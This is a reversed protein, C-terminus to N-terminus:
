AARYVLGVDEEFFIVVEVPQGVGRKGRPLEGFVHV